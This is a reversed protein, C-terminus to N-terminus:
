KLFRVNNRKARCGRVRRGLIRALHWHTAWSRGLTLVLQVCFAATTITYRQPRAGGPRGFALDQAMDQPVDQPM